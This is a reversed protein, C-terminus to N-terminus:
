GNNGSRQHARENRGGIVMTGTNSSIESIRSQNGVGGVNNPAQSSLVQIRQQLSSITALEQNQRQSAEAKSRKYETRLQKLEDKDSDEM